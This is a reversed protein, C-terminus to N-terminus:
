PRHRPPGTSDRVVLSTSCSETVPRSAPEDLLRIALNGARVGMEFMPQRITTLAPALRNAFTDDFGVISIEDPIRIRNKYLTQLAGAALLDSAAFVATLHPAQRLLAEMYERGTQIGGWGGRELPYRGRVIHEEALDIGAEALSHLYGDFREKRVRDNLQSDSEGIYGIAEHGLELLYSTATRAGEFNDVVVAGSSNCIQREVEVAPVGADLALQVNDAQLATTFIVGDVRRSLLSEVGERERTPDGDTNFMLVNFGHEVAAQEVGMAVEAFFPNPSIGHLILGLTITRQRRLAQAVADLRYGSEQLAAEVRARTEPAVYGNSHLVRAVTATSVGARAAVSKITPSPSKTAM